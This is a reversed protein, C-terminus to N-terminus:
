PCPLNSIPVQMYLLRRGCFRIIQVTCFQRSHPASNFAMEGRNSSDKSSSEESLKYGPPIFPKESLLLYDKDNNIMRKHEPYM